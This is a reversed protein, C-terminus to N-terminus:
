CRSRSFCGMAWGPYREELWDFFAAVDGPKIYKVERRDLEPAEVKEVIQSTDSRMPDFYLSPRIGTLQHEIV